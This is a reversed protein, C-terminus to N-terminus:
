LVALLFRRVQLFFVAVKQEAVGRGGFFDLLDNFFAKPVKNKASRQAGRVGMLLVNGRDKGIGTIRLSLNIAVKKM